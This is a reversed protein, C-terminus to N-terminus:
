ISFVCHKKFFERKRKELSQMSRPILHRAEEFKKQRLYFAALGSWVKSSHGFKKTTKKWNEEAEELKGTKELIDNMRLYITKADNAQSAERFTKEREEISGYSNELNLLAIWVNLKEQEERFNIVRLARRAVERARSVDSLQLQFSMFQIWLYSSNPSGLLMREFDTSSTPTRTALDATIDEQINKGKSAKKRRNARKSTEGEEEEESESESESAALGQDDEDEERASWSFGGALELAAPAPVSSKSAAKKKSSVAVPAEDEDQDMEIYDEGEEEESDQPDEMEEDSGMEEDEDSGGGDLGAQKLLASADMEDGDESDEENQEEEDSDEEGNAMNVDGDQDEDDGDDFDEDEFYSPKLGFSIKKKEESVDLVVAKVKDGLSFAQLADAASAEDSLQSKHCLGSVDTGEIQVFVGFDSKGRIFGKIKDGKSFDSLKKISAEAQVLADHKAKKLASKTDNSPTSRLSFEVRAANADISHFRPSTILRTIFDIRFVNIPFDFVIRKRTM